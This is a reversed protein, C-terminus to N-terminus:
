QKLIQIAITGSATAGGYVLVLLPKELPKDPTGQLKLSGFLALGVSSVVALGIAAAEEWSLTEPVKWIQDAAAVIHQKFAGSAMDIPNSGHQAGAVRDGVKLNTVADGIEVVTGAFDSGDVAGPCPVRTPMKWDCPNLAVAAVKILVQNSLPTPFPGNPIIELTGPPGSAQVIARQFRPKTAMNNDYSQTCPFFM